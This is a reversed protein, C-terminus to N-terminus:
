PTQISSPAWSIGGLDILFKLGECFCMNAALSSDSSAFPVEFAELSSQALSLWAVEVFLARSAVVSSGNDLEGFNKSTTVSM